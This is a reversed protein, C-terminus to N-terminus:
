DLLIKANFLENIAKDMTTIYDDKCLTLTVGHSMALVLQLKVFLDSPRIGINSLTDKSIYEKFRSMFKYVQLQNAKKSTNITEDLIEAM